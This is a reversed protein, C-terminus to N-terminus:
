VGEHLIGHYHLLRKDGICHYHIFGSARILEIYPQGQPNEIESPYRSTVIDAIESVLNEAINYDFRDCFATVDHEKGENYMLLVLLTSVANSIGEQDINARLIAIIFEDLQRTPLQHSSINYITFQERITNYVFTFVDQEPYSIMYPYAPLHTVMETAYRYIEKKHNDLQNHLIEVPPAHKRRSRM